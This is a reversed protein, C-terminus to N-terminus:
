GLIIGDFHNHPYSNKKVLYVETCMSGKIIEKKLSAM